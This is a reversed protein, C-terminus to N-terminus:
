FLQLAAALALSLLAAVVACVASACDLAITRQTWGVVAISITSVM